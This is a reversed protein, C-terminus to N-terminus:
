CTPDNNRDFTGLATKADEVLRLVDALHVGDCAMLISAIRDNLLEAVTPESNGCYLRNPTDDRQMTSSYGGM